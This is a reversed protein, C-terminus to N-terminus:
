HKLSNRYCFQNASEYNYCVVNCEKQISETEKM